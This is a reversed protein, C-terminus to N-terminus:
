SNLKEVFIDYLEDIFEDMDGEEEKLVACWEEFTLGNEPHQAYNKMMEELDENEWVEDAFHKMESMNLYKDKDLDLHKWIEKLSIIMIFTEPPPPPASGRVSIVHITVKDAFRVRKRPKVPSLRSSTSLNSSAALDLIPLCDFPDISSNKTEPSFNCRRASPRRSIQKPSARLTSILRPDIDMQAKAAGASYTMLFSQSGESTPAVAIQKQKPIAASNQISMLLQNREKVGFSAENQANKNEMPDVLDDIESKRTSIDIDLPKLKEVRENM